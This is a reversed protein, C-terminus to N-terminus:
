NNIANRDGFPNDDDEDMEPDSDSEVVREQVPPRPRHAQTLLQQPGSQPRPPKTPPKENISMSAMSGVIKSGRRSSVVPPGGHAGEVESDSDDEVSKDMVEYAMLAKVLEDNASLLSGIWQDSEVLQIYRLIQRRLVKCAEFRKATELDDSVQTTERNILQLANLLNTSAVSSHAIAQLMNAKEKELSFQKPKGKKDKKSLSEQYTGGFTPAASLTAARNSSLAGSSGHLLSRRKSGGPSPAHTPELAPASPKHEDHVEEADGYPDAAAERETERVVRSQSPQPKAKTPLQKHLAAIGGLGSVNKYTVAWQKYLQNCKARVDPDIVENRPMM